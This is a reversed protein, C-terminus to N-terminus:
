RGAVWGLRRRVAAVAGFPWAPHDSFWAEGADLLLRAATEVDHAQVEALVAAREPAVREVRRLPDLPDLVGGQEPGIGARLATLLDGVAHGRVFAGGSLVEGRRARGVGVLLHTPLMGLARAVADAGPVGEAAPVTIAAVAATVPGRDHVVRAADARFTALGDLDSVALEVMRADDTLVVLGHATERVVSVAREAGPLWGLDVRYREDAGPVTVLWVDLDSWADARATDAASGLLVVGLVDPDGAVRRVLEAVDVPSTPLPGAAPPAAPGQSM